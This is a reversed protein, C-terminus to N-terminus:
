MDHAAKRIRDLCEPLNACGAEFVVRFDGGAMRLESRVLLCSPVGTLHQVQLRVEGDGIM